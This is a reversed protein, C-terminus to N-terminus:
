WGGCTSGAEGPVVAELPAVVAEESDESVEAEALDAVAPLSIGSVVQIAAERCCALPWGFPCTAAVWVPM